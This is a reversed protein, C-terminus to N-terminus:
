SRAEKKIHHHKHHGKEINTVKKKKGEPLHEPVEEDQHYEHYSESSQTNPPSFLLFEGCEALLVLAFLAAVATHKLREEITDVRYAYM